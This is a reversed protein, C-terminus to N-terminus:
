LGITIKRNPWDLGSNIVAARVRDRSERIATDALGVIAMGPIGASLDVEVEVVGGSIGVLGVSWTRALSM